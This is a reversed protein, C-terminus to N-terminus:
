DVKFSPCDTQGFLRLQNIVGSIRDVQHVADRFKESMGQPATEQRDLDQLTCKFVARIQNLPTNIEGAVGSAMVGITEMKQAQKMRDIAKDKEEQALTIGTLDKQQIIAHTVKGRSNKVPVITAEIVTKLDRNAGTLQNFRVPDYVNQFVVTRGDRFVSEVLPIHGQEQMVQDDFLNYKGVVAEDTLGWKQRNAENVTVCTGKDDSIWMPFPGADFVATLLAKIGELDKQAANLRARLESGSEHDRAECM